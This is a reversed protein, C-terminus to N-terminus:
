LASFNGNFCIEVLSATKSVDEKIQSKYSHLYMELLTNSIEFSVPISNGEADVISKSESIIFELYEILKASHNLFIHLFKECKFESGYLSEENLASDLDTIDFVDNLDPIM